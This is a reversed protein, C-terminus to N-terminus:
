VPSWWNWFHHIPGAGSGTCVEAGALIAGDMYQKAFRLAEELEVGRAIWTAIAASVSCGTGHLNITDIKPSSLEFIKDNRCDYWVDVTRSGPAHGGTLLVSRCGLDGLERCIMGPEEDAGLTRGLLVEAEPLNPTIVEALPILRQKLLEVGELSLLRTGSTSVMVPDLVIKRGKRGQWSRLKQAVVGVTEASNLMGIKIGECGIDDLVTELQLGVFESSVPEVAQVGLSNQATLATTVSMGYCGLASFTKLDAQLGAGGGSDSGAISLLKCYRKVM